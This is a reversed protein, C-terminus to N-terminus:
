EQNGILHSVHMRLTTHSDADIICRTSPYLYQFICPMHSDIITRTPWIPLEKCKYYCLNIWTSCIRSVSTQSIQFKYALDQKYFGLRLCCLMLFFENLPSLKHPKGKTLKIHDEYSLVSVAPGLFTSCAMLLQFSPFGTYFKIANCNDQIQEVHLTTSHDNGEDHDTQTSVDCYKTVPIETQASADRKQM